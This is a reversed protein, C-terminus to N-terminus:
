QGLTVGVRLTRGPNPLGCQDYLAADLVNDLMVQARVRDAWGRAAFQRNLGLDLTTAGPQAIRSGATSGVCSTSAANRVRAIAMIAARTPVTATLSGFTAPLNEPVREAANALVDRVTADQWTLEGRLDAGGLRVGGMVEVGHARYEDRNV